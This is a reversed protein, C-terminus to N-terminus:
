LLSELNFDRMLLHSGYAKMFKKIFFVIIEKNFTTYKIKTHLPSTLYAIILNKLFDLFSITYLSHPINIATKIPLIVRVELNRLFDLFSGIIRSGMLTTQMLLRTVHTFLGWYVKFIHLFFNFFGKFAHIFLYM